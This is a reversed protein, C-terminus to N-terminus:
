GPVEQGEVTPVKFHITVDLTGSNDSYIDDNIGLALAVADPPVDIVAAEGVAFPQGVIAGDADVFAGVLQNLHVVGAKPDIYRSPFGNGSNGATSGTIYDIQGNPGFSAGGQATTTTGTATLSLKRNFKLNIGFAIAAARGDDRGFPFKRNVGTDWPQAKASVKVLKDEALAPTAVIGIAVALALLWRGCLDGVAM